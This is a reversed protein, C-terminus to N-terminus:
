GISTTTEYELRLQNTMLDNEEEKFLLMRVRMIRVLVKLDAIVKGCKECRLPEYGHFVEYIPVLSTHGCHCKRARM